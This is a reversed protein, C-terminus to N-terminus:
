SRKTTASSGPRSSTCSIKGGTPYGPTSGRWRSGPRTGTRPARRPVPWGGSRGRSGHGTAASTGPIPSRRGPRSPSWPRSGADVGVVAASAPYPEVACQCLLSVFWRGARDRSVTVTSPEAGDPLPRSWVVALPATMKALHLQGDRYRFASRTYEAAARSKKRSKLRPHRAQNDWFRAYASQLHRLAQQLPVSSVETLFTFDDSRKWHTLLASSQPYTVREHRQHWATTRADLALNWVKRVCGFTRTLEAAQEPTPYFRYKYARKVVKGMYFM